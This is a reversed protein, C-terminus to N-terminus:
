HDENSSGSDEKIEEVEIHNCTHSVLMIPALILSLSAIFEAPIKEFAANIAPDNVLDNTLKDVNDIKKFRNVTHAYINLISNAIPKRLENNYKELYIKHYQQIEECSLKDIKEETLNKGCYKKISGNKVLELLKLKEPSEDIPRNFFEDLSEDINDIIETM